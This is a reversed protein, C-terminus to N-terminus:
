VKQTINVVWKPLYKGSDQIIRWLTQEKVLLLFIRELRKARPEPLEFFLNLYGKHAEPRYCSHSGAPIVPKEKHEIIETLKSLM